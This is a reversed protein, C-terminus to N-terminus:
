PFFSRIRRVTPRPRSGAAGTGVAGMGMWRAGMQAAGGLVVWGVGARERCLSRAAKKTAWFVRFFAANARLGRWGFFIKTIGRDRGEKQPMISPVRGPPAAVRRVPRRLCGCGLCGRGPCVGRGLWGRGPCGCRLRGCGLCGYGLWGCGLCGCGLCGCGLCGCGLCGCGLCMGGRLCVGCRLSTGVM